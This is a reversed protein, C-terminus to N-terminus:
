LDNIVYIVYEFPTNEGVRTRTLSIFVKSQKKTRANAKKRM